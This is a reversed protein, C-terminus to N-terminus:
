LGKMSHQFVELLMLILRIILWPPLARRMTHESIGGRSSIFVLIIQAFSLFIWSSILRALACLYFIVCIWSCSLLPSLFHIPFPTKRLVYMRVYAYLYVPLDVRKRYM